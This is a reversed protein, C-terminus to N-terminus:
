TSFAHRAAQRWCRSDPHRAVACQAPGAHRFLGDGAARGGARRRCHGRRHLRLGPAAPDIFRHGRPGREVLVRGTEEIPDVQLGADSMAFREFEARVLQGSRDDGIRTIALCPAMFASLHRAVNFPAGGVIQENDFDDVLAEGFVVTAPAHMVMM